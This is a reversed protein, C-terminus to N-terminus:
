KNEDLSLIKQKKDERMKLLKQSYKSSYNLMQISALAANEYRNLGIWLGKDTVDVLKLSDEAKSNNLVPVNIILLEDDFILKSIEQIDVFNINVYEKKFEESLNPKIEFESFLKMMKEFKGSNVKKSKVVNVNDFNSIILKANRVVEDYRNIGAALVPIGPPMQIISLLADLGQFNGPCPVGIIPTITKSAVVGPLHAALGAGSIILQYEKELIQNLFSPTRHASCIKFDYDELKELIPKYTKSDSKSGFIVLIKNM